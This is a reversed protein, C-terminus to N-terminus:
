SNQYKVQKVFRDECHHLQKELYNQSLDQHFIQLNKGTIKSLQIILYNCQGNLGQANEQFSGFIYCILLYSFNELNQGEFNESRQDFRLCHLLQSNLSRKKWTYYQNLHM